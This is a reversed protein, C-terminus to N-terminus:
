TFNQLSRNLDAVCALSQGRTTASTEVIFKVTWTGKSFSGEIEEGKMRFLVPSPLDPNWYDTRCARVYPSNDIVKQLFNLIPNEANGWSHRPLRPRIKETAPVPPPLIRDLDSEFRGKFTEHFIQGTASLELYEKRDMEIREVLPELREDWDEKVELSTIIEGRDLATLLGSKELWLPFDLSIPMPPFAIIESFLEHKYYVPIGLAQGMLVAIAIQAKYGGTANIACFRAQREQVIKGMEKALNRLGKTRFLKPDKDQLHEIEQKQTLYGKAKYYCDLVEAIQHGEDTASHCFILLSKEACYQRSMLDAISNIEAGCLRVTAPITALLEAVQKWEQHELAQKLNQTLELSLYPRDGPPQRELWSEYGESSPLGKLNPKLLSTGVTSILNNIM